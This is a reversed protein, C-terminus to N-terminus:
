HQREETGRHEQRPDAPRVQMQAQITGGRGNVQMDAIITGAALELQWIRTVFIRRDVHRTGNDALQRRLTKSTQQYSGNQQYKNGQSLRWHEQRRREADCDGLCRGKEPGM